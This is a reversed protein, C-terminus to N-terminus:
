RLQENLHAALLELYSQAASSDPAHELLWEGTVTLGHEILRRSHNFLRMASMRAGTLMLQQCESLLNNCARLMAEARSVALLHDQSSTAGNIAGQMHVAFSASGVRSMASPARSLQPVGDDEAGGGYTRICHQM